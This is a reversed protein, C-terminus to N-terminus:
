TSRLAIIFLALLLGFALIAYGSWYFIRGSPTLAEAGFSMFQGARLLPWKAAVLSVFGLAIAAIAVSHAARGLLEVAAAILVVPVLLGGGLLWLVIAHRQGM